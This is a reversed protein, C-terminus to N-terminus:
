QPKASAILFEIYKRSKKKKIERERKIASTRDEFEETYVLRWDNAISTYPSMKDMHSKLRESLDSTQGVYYKDIDSSYLIYLKYSM